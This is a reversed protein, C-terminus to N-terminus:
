PSLKALCPNVHRRNDGPQHAGTGVQTCGKLPLLFTFEGPKGQTGGQRQQGYTCLPRCPLNYPRGLAALGLANEAQRGIQQSTHVTHAWPCGGIHKTRHVTDQGICAAM